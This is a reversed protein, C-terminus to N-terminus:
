VVSKRDGAGALAQLMAEAGPLPQLRDLHDAEYTRYVVATAQDARAGFLAPFADRAAQRLNRSTDDLTWPRGGCAEFTATRAHHIVAWSDVLPNAWHM